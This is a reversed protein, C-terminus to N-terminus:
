KKVYGAAYGSYEGFFNEAAPIMYIGVTSEDKFGFQMNLRGFYKDIVQVCIGLKQPEVWAASTAADYFNGPAYEAGVLDSYGEEPFKDFVNKGMGFYLTKVGTANEYEMTSRDIGFNFRIWKIEMDNKDLVFTKGNIKESFESSPDGKITALSLDKTYKALSAQKKKPCSTNQEERVIIDFFADM